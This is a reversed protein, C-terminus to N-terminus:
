RQPEKFRDANLQPRLLADILADIHVDFEDLRKRELGRQLATLALESVAASLLRGVVDPDACSAERNQV